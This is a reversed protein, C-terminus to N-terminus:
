EIRSLIEKRNTLFWVNWKGLLERGQDLSDNAARKVPDKKPDVGKPSLATFHLLGYTGLRIGPLFEKAVHSPLESHIERLVDDSVMSMGSGAAELLARITEWDDTILNGQGKNFTAQDYQLLAEVFIDVEVMQDDSWNPKPNLLDPGFKMILALVLIVIAATPLGKGQTLFNGSAEPRKDKPQRKSSQPSRTGFARFVVVVVLIAVATWLAIDWIM